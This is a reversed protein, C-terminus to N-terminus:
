DGSHVRLVSATYTLVDVKGPQSAELDYPEPDQWVGRGDSGFVTIPGTVAPHEATTMAIIEVKGRHLGVRTIAYRVGGIILFGLDPTVGSVPQGRELDALSIREEMQRSLRDLFAPSASGPPHATVTPAPAAELPIVEPSPVVMLKRSKGPDAQVANWRNRFNRWRWRDRLWRYAITGAFAGLAVAALTWVHSVSEQGLTGVARLAAAM